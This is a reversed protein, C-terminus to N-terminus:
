STKLMRFMKLDFRVDSSSRDANHIEVAIVNKGKRLLRSSFSRSLWTTEADIDSITTRAPTGWSFGSPLNDTWVRRNNVYVAIADDRQVQLWFRSTAGPKAIWLNKRFAYTMRSAHVRSRLGEDGYGLVSTGTKWSRANFRIKKWGWAKRGSDNFKWRSGSPV